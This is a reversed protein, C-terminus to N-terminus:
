AAIMAAAECSAYLRRSEEIGKLRFKGCTKQELLCDQGSLSEANYFWDVYEPHILERRADLMGAHQEAQLHDRYGKQVVGSFFESVAGSGYSFFGITKGHLDAPDTELLSCLAIYMSATYTNGLNRGYSLSHKYTDEDFHLAEPYSEQLATVAKKAMKTFPTHLVLRDMNSMSRGGNSEYDAFALNIAEMYIDISLQGDVCATKRNNPRWFDMVDRTFMGTFSDLAVLRPNATIVIAAAGAGQTCEANSDQEYRAIDSAIVLVAKDPRSRVLDCGMLIGATAAYCAQKAEIVRCNSPLNLLGHLFAGASKSQDVSSETAFIVTHLKKRVNQTLLPAAAEAAMTVIDEDPAPVGIKEQGIGHLYKDPDVGHRIALAAASYYQGPTYFNLADIGTKM